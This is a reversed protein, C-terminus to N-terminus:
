LQVTGPTHQREYRDQKLKRKVRRALERDPILNAKMVEKDCGGVPCKVRSRRALMQCIAEKSYCHNCLKNRVPEEFPKRTIPCHLAEEVQSFIIGSADMPEQEVERSSSQQGRSQPKMIDDFEKLAKHSEPSDQDRSLISEFEKDFVKVLNPVSEETSNSEYFQRMANKCAETAESMQKLKVDSGALSLLTSRLTAVEGDNEGELESIDEAIELCKGIFEDLDNSYKTYSRICGDIGAYQSM